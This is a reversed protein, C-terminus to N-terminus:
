AELAGILANEAERRVLEPTNLSCMLYVVNGLPRAHIDFTVGGGSGGGGLRARASRLKSVIDVSATSTYGSGSGADDRISLALVCGLAMASDVRRARSLRQVAARSWFSWVPAHSPSHLTEREGDSSSWDSQAERWLESRKQMQSIRAIAEFAVQCGVPHATYSHGHLLADAKNESQNFTSFISRSALTVAMPVLGGTLIKALCSIDPPTRLIKAPTSHGLRWLGTFVEDFIVPLGRWEHADRSGDSHAGVKADKLPPESLSFLDEAGRVVDILARQFLPDVFIMGGAGLVLPEIILAGFRRGEVLVLGELWARLETTYRRWLEDTRMREEVDYVSSLSAYRRKEGGPLTITPEGDIISVAPPDLWAGRGRYWHVAQSYTSPECADMAGITDGHYSGKLGLVQWEEAARSGGASGKERARSTRELTASSARPPAYRLAASAIAMKIGVEMGTSGDDSFFVRDAWGSGPADEAKLSALSREGGGGEAKSERATGLLAETLRLAPLNTSNPFIVHGFRAAARAAARAIGADSHGLCQTWWSASGDLLPRLLSGDAAGNAAGDYVSFFDGNASDIVNVDRPGRTLTHQTFPWWCQDVTRQAMSDLDRIRAEHEERLLKVVASVGKPTEAPGAEAGRGSVLGDYYAALHRVDQQADSLRDPPAGWAGHGRPGALGFVPLSNEAGWKILYEANGWAAAAGAASGGGGMADCFLLIARVDHGALTLADYASLTTSIGGLACSGVLLTPLRLPRLAHAFSGGAPTPSHVGGATELYLASAKRHPAAAIRQIHAHTDYVLQADSPIARGSRAAALHPSVAEGYQVLTSAHVGPAFRHIHGEDAEHDPGTSVPKLYHVEEEARQSALCLATAFISKGVDTNAGFIQAVRVHRFLLPTVPLPSM